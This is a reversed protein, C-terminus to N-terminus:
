GICTLSGQSYLLYLKQIKVNVLWNRHCRDIQMIVSTKKKKTNKCQGTIKKKLINKANILLEPYFVRSVFWM